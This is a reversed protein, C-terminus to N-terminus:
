GSRKLFNYSRYSAAVDVLLVYVTLLIINNSAQFFQGVGLAVGVTISILVSLFIGLAVKELTNVGSGPFVAM